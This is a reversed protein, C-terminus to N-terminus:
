KADKKYAEREALLIIGRDKPYKKFLRELEESYDVALPNLQVRDILLKIKRTYFIIKQERLESEYARNKM